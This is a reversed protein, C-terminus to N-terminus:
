IKGAIETLCSTVEPSCDEIPLSENGFTNLCYDSNYSSCVFCQIAFAVM